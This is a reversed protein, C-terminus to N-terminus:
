KKVEKQSIYSGYTYWGFNVLNVFLVRLPEPVYRFNVIQAPIWVWFSTRLIEPYDQYFKDSFPAKQAEADHTWALFALVELPNFICMEIVVKKSASVAALEAGFYVDLAGFYYHNFLGTIFLGYIAFNKTRKIDLEQNGEIFMQAVIDGGGTILMGTAAKTSLPM